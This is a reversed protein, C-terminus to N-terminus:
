GGSTGSLRKGAMTPARDDSAGMSKMPKAASRGFHLLTLCFFVRIVLTTRTSDPLAPPPFQADNEATHIQIRRAGYAHLPFGHLM